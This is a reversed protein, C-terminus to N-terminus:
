SFSLPVGRRAPESAVWRFSGEDHGDIGQVVLGDLGLVVDVVHGALAAVDEFVVLDHGLVVEGHQLGCVVHHRGGVKVLACQVPLCLFEYEDHAQGHHTCGLAVDLAVDADGEVEPEGLLLDKLCDLDRQRFCTDHGELGPEIGPAFHNPSVADFGVTAAWSPPM